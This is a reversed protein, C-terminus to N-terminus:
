EMEEQKSLKRRYLHLVVKRSVPIFVAFIVIQIIVFLWVPLIPAKAQDLVVGGDPIGGEGMDPVYEGMVTGEFDKSITVPEGNSDEFTVVLTGKAQGEVSPIVELEAFEQSGAEVNGIFYMSGTSLTFDGTISAQVNNLTSKGLNYFQFSLATPQNITPSEWSGVVINDVVPRTNEVAQLNITEKATEGVEGTTPNAEAGDYDYEMTIELPYAKTTADSKVKLELTNQLTEGAKIREVFFTNSGHDVSFINDAQSITVKINRADVGSHTNKIDFIFKFTSGAKLEEVDTTFNSIILKPK